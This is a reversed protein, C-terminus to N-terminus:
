TWPLQLGSKASALFGIVVDSLYSCTVVSVLVLQLMRYLRIQGALFLWLLSNTHNSDFSTVSVAQFLRGYLSITDSLPCPESFSASRFSNVRHPRSTRANANARSSGFAPHDTSLSAAKQLMSHKLHLFLCCRSDGPSQGTESERQVSLCWNNQSRVGRVFFFFRYFDLLIRWPVQAWLPLSRSYHCVWPPDRLHRRKRTALLLSNVGFQLASTGDRDGNDGM